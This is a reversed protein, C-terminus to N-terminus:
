SRRYRRKEASNYHQIDRELDALENKMTQIFNDCSSAFGGMAIVTDREAFDDTVVLVEGYPKMRHTVREIIQDATQGARSFLIEVQPTSQTEQRTGRHGGGDFVITVPTQVADSYRRLVNALEDRASASHRAHGHALEPWSHLLSYGDVMIRVLAM